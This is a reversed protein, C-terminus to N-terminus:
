IGDIKNMARAKGRKRAVATDKRQRGTKTRSYAADGEVKPPPPLSRKKAYSTKDYMYGHQKKRREEADEPSLEAMLPRQPKERRAGRLPPVRKEAPEGRAARSASRSEALRKALQSPSSRSAMTMTSSATTWAPSLTWKLASRQEETWGQFGERNHLRGATGHAM